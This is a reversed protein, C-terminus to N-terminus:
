ATRGFGRQVLPYNRGSMIPQVLKREDLKRQDSSEVAEGTAIVVDDQLLSWGLTM